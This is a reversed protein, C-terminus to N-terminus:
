LLHRVIMAIGATAASMTGGGLAVMVMCGQSAARRRRPELLDQLRLNHPLLRPQVGGEEPQHAPGGRPAKLGLSHRVYRRLSTRAAISKRLSPRRFGYKM